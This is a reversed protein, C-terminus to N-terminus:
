FGEGDYEQFIVHGCAKCHSADKDHFRLGCGPCIIERKAGMHIWEKAIRSVQWPILIIGSLIMIVTVWKGAESLPIIDGFGVTTLAVVTFYFADGFTNVGPNAASEVQYFLGSAVFFIMLITMLLRIVNLLGTTISGFFFVPDATFRLFRLIRFVRLHRFVQMFGLHGGLGLHPLVLFLLTPLIAVLDIMSYINTIHKLRRRAGYLRAGYEVIFFMVIVVETKWLLNNTARSVPYTEIVVIACIVLNLLLIFVDILKGLLTKCDILYFQLNERFGGSM